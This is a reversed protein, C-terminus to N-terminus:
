NASSRRTTVRVYREPPLGTVEHLELRDEASRVLLVEFYAITNARVSGTPGPDLATTLCNLCPPLNLALFVAEGRREVQMPYRRQFPPGGCCDITHRSWRASGDRAIVLTDARASPAADSTTPLEYRVWTGTLEDRPGFVDGDGCGGVALSLLLAGISAVRSALRSM